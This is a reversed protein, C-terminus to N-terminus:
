EVNEKISRFPEMRADDCKREYLKLIGNGCIVRYDCQRCGEATAYQAFVGDRIMSAASDLLNSLAPRQDDLAEHTFTVTRYEGRLTFYLYSASDVRVKPLLSEAALIYLPLQLAEGGTLSDDRINRPLRGTKYDLVRARGGDDSRDIRDITGRLRVPPAVAISRFEREFDTPRWGVSANRDREIFADLEEIIIQKKVEWVTPYGTVGRRQFENFHREAVTAINNGRSRYYDELIAHYLSGLDMADISLAAEPEEWREIGLVYKQFYYFPCGFFDELSTASIVLKDLGFRERLVERANASGLLGDYPTLARERWRTGANDVGEALLGSIQGLYGHKDAVSMLGALDFERENLPEAVTRVPSLPIKVAREDLEHFNRTGAYELLLFSAMRPRSTLPELRPYSLVLKERAAEMTLSFLLREEEYGDLKRPLDPSIRVREEDTLLPDERIVRPFSKEVLGLLIVLPWSLGRASMVDGVFIGGGQFQEPQDSSAEVAKWCYDAFTEFTVRPQFEELETLVGICDVIAENRGGLARFSTILATGYESWTAEGPLGGLLSMLKRVFVLVHGADQRWRERYREDDAEQHEKDPKSSAAELREIWQQQGGVIGLQVSLVDWHSRPGTHCALEMVSARSFDSRVAALLLSLLRADPQESLPRGGRFYAKIGLSGLTDRLIADYQERSRCLIAVDNFSRDEAAVFALAERVAEQVESTEGPCSLITAPKPKRRSSTLASKYDQARFWDLLPESYANHSASPFFVTSPSLKRVFQKQAATLDYFGYLFMESNLNPVPASQYLSSETVFGHDTLWHRYAAYAVSLESM